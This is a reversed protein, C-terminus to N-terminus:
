AKEGIERAVSQRRPRARAIVRKFFWALPAMSAAWEWIARSIVRM